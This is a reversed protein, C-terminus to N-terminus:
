FNEIITGNAAVSYDITAAVGLRIRLKSCGEGLRAAASSLQRWRPAPDLTLWLFGCARRVPAGM